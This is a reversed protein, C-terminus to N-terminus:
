TTAHGRQVWSRKIPEEELRLSNLIKSRKVVGTVVDGSTVILNRIKHNKMIEIADCIQTGEDVMIVPQRMVEWARVESPNRCLAVVDRVIDKETVIGVSGDHHDVLVCHLKNLNMTVAVGAINLSYPVTVVPQVLERITRV